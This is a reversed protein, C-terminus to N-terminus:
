KRADWGSDEFPDIQRKTYREQFDPGLMSLDEEDRIVGKPLYGLLKPAHERLLRAREEEVIRKRFEEMEQEARRESLEHERDQSFQARRDELLKEVARKHEAQKMRRKQVNMQEIRDDEAFKALMEKKFQEEEDKEAQQRLKKFHM